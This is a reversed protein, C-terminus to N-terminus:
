ETVEWNWVGFERFLCLLNVASPLYRGNEWNSVSIHTVGLMEAVQKQTLGRANRQERLWQGSFSPVQTTRDM